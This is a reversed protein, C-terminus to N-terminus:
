EESPDKAPQCFYAPFGEIEGLFLPYNLCQGWLDLVLSPGLGARRRADRAAELHPYPGIMVGHLAGSVFLSVDPEDGDSGRAARERLEVAAAVAKERDLGTAYMLVPVPRDFSLMRPPAESLERWSLLAVGIALSAAMLLRPGSLHARQKDIIREFRAGLRRRLTSLSPRRARALRELEAPRPVRLTQDGEPIPPPPQDVGIYQFPLRELAPSPLGAGEPRPTEWYVPRIFGEPRGLALAYEWEGRVFASALANESWFLQFVDAERIMEALRQSWQEGSRLENLDTLYPDGFADALAELQGLIVEDGASYAAYVKRYAAASV